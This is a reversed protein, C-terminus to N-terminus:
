SVEYVFAGDKVDVSARTIEQKELSRTLFHRALEPLLTNTVIN